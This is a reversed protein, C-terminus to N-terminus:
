EWIKKLGTDFLPQYPITLGCFVVPRARYDEAVYVGALTAEYIIWKFVTWFQEDHQMGRYNAIHSIEHLMTFVLVNEDVLKSPDSKDRLCLYTEAGKGITWSTATTYRNDTEYIADPDYNDLLHDVMNYLDNPRTVAIAHDPESAIIDDTEDIHYKKKLFRMLDIIRGHARALLEAAEKKNEFGGVMNWDRRSAYVRARATSWYYIIMIIVFVCVAAFM